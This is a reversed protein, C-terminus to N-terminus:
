LTCLMHWLYEFEIRQLACCTGYSALPSHPSAQRTAPRRSASSEGSLPLWATIADLSCELSQLRADLHHIHEDLHEMRQWMRTMQNHMDVMLRRQAEGDHQTEFAAHHEAHEGEKGGAGEVDEDAGELAHMGDCM